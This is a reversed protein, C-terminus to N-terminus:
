QEVKRYTNKDWKMAYSVHITAAQFEKAIFRFLFFRVLCLLCLRVQRSAVHIFLALMAFGM